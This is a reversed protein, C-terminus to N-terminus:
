RRGLASGEEVALARTADREHGPGEGGQCPCFQVYQVAGRLHEEVVGHEAGQM